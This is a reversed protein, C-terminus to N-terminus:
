FVLSFDYLFIHRIHYKNTLIHSKVGPLIESGLKQVGSNTVALFAVAGEPKKRFVGLPTSMKGRGFRTCVALRPSGEDRQARSRKGKPTWM